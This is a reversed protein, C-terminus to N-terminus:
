DRVSALSSMMAAIMAAVVLGVIGIPFEYLILYPYAKNSQEHNSLNTMCRNLSCSTPFYFSYWNVNVGRNNDLCMQYLTRAAMGPFVIMFVPILKLFSAM